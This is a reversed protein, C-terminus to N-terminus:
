RELIPFHYMHFTPNFVSAFATTRKKTKSKEEQELIMSAVDYIITFSKFM